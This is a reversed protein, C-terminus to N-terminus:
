PRKFLPFNDDSTTWFIDPVLNSVREPEIYISGGFKDYGYWYNNSGNVELFTEIEKLQNERFVTGVSEIKDKDSLINLPFVIIEPHKKRINLIGEEYIYNVLLIITATPIGGPFQKMIGKCFQNGTGIMDDVIFITDEGKLESKSTLQKYRLHLRIEPALYYSLLTDSKVFEPDSITGLYLIGKNSNIDNIMELIKTKFKTIVDEITYYVFHNLMELIMLQEEETYQNIFKHIRSIMLGSKVAIQNVLDPIFDITIKNETIMKLPSSPVILETYNKFILIRYDRYKLDKKLSDAIKNIKIEIPPEPLVKYYHNGPYVPILVMTLDSILKSLRYRLIQRDIDYEILPLTVTEGFGIFDVFVTKRIQSTSYNLGISLRNQESNTIDGYLKDNVKIIGIVDNVEYISNSLQYQIFTFEGDSTLLSGTNKIGHELLIGHLTYYAWKDECTECTIEENLMRNCLKLVFEIKSFNHNCTQIRDRPSSLNLPFSNLIQNDLIVSIYRIRRITTDHKDSLLVNRVTVTKSNISNFFPIFEELNKRFLRLENLYNKHTFWINIKDSPHFPEFLESLEKVENINRLNSNTVINPNNKLYEINNQEFVKEGINFITQKMAQTILISLVQFFNKFPSVINLDIRILENDILFKSFDDDPTKLSSDYRRETDEVLVVLKSLADDLCTM